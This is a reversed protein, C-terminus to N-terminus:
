MGRTADTSSPESRSCSGVGAPAPDAGCLEAVTISEFHTRIMGVGDRLQQRLPGLPDPTIEPWSRPRGSEVAAIVEQVRIERVPRAVVFGGGLGRRSRVLGARRLAQLVKMQYSEPGGTVASLTRATLPRGGGRALHVMTRLAYEAARSIM